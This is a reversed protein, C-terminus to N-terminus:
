AIKDCTYSWKAVVEILINITTGGPVVGKNGCGNRRGGSERAVVLRNEM